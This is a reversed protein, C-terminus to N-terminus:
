QAAEQEKFGGGAGGVAGGEGGGVGRAARPPAGAPPAAGAVVASFQASRPSPGAILATLGGRAFRGAAAGAPPTGALAAARLAEYDAQAAEAPPWFRRV